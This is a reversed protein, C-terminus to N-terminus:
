RVGVWRIFSLDDKRLHVAFEQMNPSNGRWDRPQIPDGFHVVYTTQTEVIWIDYGELPSRFTHHDVAVAVVQFDKGSIRRGEEPSSIALETAYAPACVLLSAAVLFQKM